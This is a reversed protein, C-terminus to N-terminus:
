PTVSSVLTPVGLGQVDFDNANNIDTVNNSSYTSGSINNFWKGEKERFEPVQGSDKDTTITEVAWGEINSLNYFEDEEKLSNVNQLVKGQSGEYSISKFHKIVDSSDNLVVDVTSKSYTGYFTNRNVTNDYHNWIMSNSLSDSQLNGSVVGAGHIATVYKGSVSEGAKPIFSKFSVWGKAGENYSVTKSASDITVNYEGSVIDYTGLIDGTSNRLNERFWSRMGYESIPTIGDRSLRLVAGRQKDVFYMRYQDSALSEPNKSIGYDGVYPTANGLVKNTAVLQSNGDANFIADKNTLVKLVKDETFVILADYRNKLAQISGYSPNIEKTIKEAMIFQNLDNVDTNPNYIGSYIMGNKVNEEAYKNTTTSVKVGNDIQPANFDDRIRDSEIGNGFSYCNFWPLRVPYKWVDPDLAYWEGSSRFSVAVNVPQTEFSQFWSVLEDFGDVVTLGLNNAGAIFSSEVEQIIVQPMGLSEDDAFMILDGIFANQFAQRADTDNFGLKLIGSEFYEDGFAGANAGTLYSLGNTSFNPNSTITSWYPYFTNATDSDAGFFDLISENSATDLIKTKTVTGDEHFIKIFDGPLINTTHGSTVGDQESVSSNSTIRVLPCLNYDATGQNTISTPISRIVVKDVKHHFNDLDVKVESQSTQRYIEISSKLPIFDFVNNEKIRLPLAKSAEYYIDLDTDEKPETEWCAGEKTFTAQGGGSDVRAILQIDLTTSGDHRLNSRPDFVTPDIADQTVQGTSKNIRRFNIRFGTKRKYPGAGQNDQAIFLSQNNAESADSGGTDDYYPIYPYTRRNGNYKEVKIIKYIYPDGDGSGNCDRFSFYNGVGEMWNRFETGATDLSEDGNDVVTAFCIRGLHGATPLGSTDGPIFGPDIQGQDLGSSKRYDFNEEGITLSWNRSADIFFVHGFSHGFTNEYQAWFNRTEKRFYVTAFGQEVNDPEFPGNVGYNPDANPADANFPNNNDNSVNSVSNVFDAPDKWPTFNSVGFNPYYYNVTNNVSPIYVTDADDDGAYQGATINPSPNVFAGFWWESSGDDAIQGTYPGSAQLGQNQQSTEVYTISSNTIPAYYTNIDDNLLVQNLLIDDQQIKVFFRGDFEPKNEVVEEKFEIRYRLGAVTGDETAHEYGAALFRARMDADSGWKDKFHFHIQDSEPHNYRVVTNWATYFKKGEGGQINVDNQNSLLGTVTANMEQAGTIVGVIRAKLVGQIKRSEFNIHTQTESGFNIGTSQRRDHAFLQKFGQPHVVLYDSGIIETPSVDEPNATESAFFTTFTSEDGPEIRRDGLKRHETKIFDPANNEIAIIKYRALSDTIAADDGHRKKLILYTEEDVKNRDASPFSLWVNRNNERINDTADAFYWRDLVLNYYENSTEKVYYKVYDLNEPPVSTPITPSGYSALLEFSNKTNCIEKDVYIDGTIASHNEQSGAISGSTLVPTERGFEDGFVMGWKYSRLSKVSKEPIGVNTIQESILNQRLSIAKPVDFSQTYNGYILRGASVEQALAKKPVNDFGRLIQNSPLTFHISESTIHLEGKKLEDQVETFSLTSDQPTFLEWESDVGRKITKITYVNNTNTEKYLIDIESVDIPRHGPEPIFNKLILKRVTNIMGLNHAEDVSYDYPGPLFALESFPAFASYEGDDYRYRYSFRALKLEFLPTKQKLSATWNSISQGGYNNDPDTTLMSVKITDTPENTEEGDSDIYSIFNATLVAPDSSSSEETFTLTDNVFFLTNEFNDQKIIRIDGPAITDTESNVSQDIFLYNSLSVQTQFNGRDETNSMELVLPTRPYKKIVNIHEKKIFGDDNYVPEFETVQVFTNSPDPDLVDRCMLKTHTIFNTAAVDSLNSGAKFKEINIKKPEHLGDTWCLTDQIINISNIRTDYTFDLVKEATARVYRAGSTIGTDFLVFSEDIPKDLEVLAPIGDGGYNEQYVNIIDGGFMFVGDQNFIELKMGKRFNSTDLVPIAIFNGNVLSNTFVNSETDILNEVFGFTAHHDVVVPKIEDEKTNYEVIYDIHKMLGGTATINTNMSSSGIEGLKDVDPACCFFYVSDNKEDAISGIVQTFSGDASRTNHISGASKNGLINQLSGTDGLGDSTSDTTKIEINQADRYQGNPVLREDLDKNMKGQIFNRKIEPM